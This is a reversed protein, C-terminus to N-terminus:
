GTLYDDILNISQEVTIIAKLTLKMIQLLGSPIKSPETSIKYYATSRLRCVYGSPNDLVSVKMQLGFQCFCVIRLARYVDIDDNCKSGSYLFMSKMIKPCHLGTEVVENKGEETKGCEGAGFEFGDKFLILDPRISPLKSPIASGTVAQKKNDIYDTSVSINDRKAAIMLNDFVKDLLVWIRNVFDMESGENKVWELVKWRYVDLYEMMTKQIWYENYNTRPNQFQSAMLKEYLSDIIDDEKVSVSSNPHSSHSSSAASGRTKFDNVVQTFMTFLNKCGENYDELANNSATKILELQELSFVDKYVPDEPDLIFSHSLHEHTCSAGFEYMLDEVYVGNGLDWKQSDELAEFAKRYECLMEETMECSGTKSSSSRSRKKTSASSTDESNSHTSTTKIEAELSKWDISPSKELTKELTAARQKITHSWYDALRADPPTNKLVFERHLQIFHYVSPQDTEILYKQIFEQNGNM